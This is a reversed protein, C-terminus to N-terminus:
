LKKLLEVMFNRDRGNANYNNSASEKTTYFIAYNIIKIYYSYYRQYIGDKKSINTKLKLHTWDDKNDTGVFKGNLFYGGNIFQGGDEIVKKSYKNHRFINSNKIYQIYMVKPWLETKNKMHKYNKLKKFQLYPEINIKKPKYNMLFNDLNFEM